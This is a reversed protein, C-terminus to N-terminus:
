QLILTLQDILIQAEADTLVISPANASDIVIGVAVIKGDTNRVVTTKM